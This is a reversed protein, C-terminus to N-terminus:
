IGTTTQVNYQALLLQIEHLIKAQRAQDEATVERLYDNSNIVGNGLQASATNKIKERLAIIEDDSTLVNQLKNVEGQQNKLTLSTNYLFTERQLEVTTRNMNLLEKERKITYLGGLTWNVRLGTIYYGDPKNDLMNLAPRGYGGQFFLSLRPRNKTSLMKTQVSIYESQYDYLRLEPRTVEKVLNLNAPKVLQTSDTLQRNVMLGLMDVYAARVAKLEITKQNTKLLEAHLVDASSKLAVGNAISAETQKIGRRIDNKLLENQDVQADLLIVGFFLQNIREKLKYLEVELKQEDVKAAAKYAQKQNRIFGGDYLNAVVEGYLKYQDRSLEEVNLEPIQIPIQTVNSQYTSQGNITLVPLLGKQANAISYEETKAILERQRIMPYHETALKYSEEITLVDSTQAQSKELTYLLCIIGILKRM